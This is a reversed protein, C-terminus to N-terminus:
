LLLLLPLSCHNYRDFEILRNDFEIEKRRVPADIYLHIHEHSGSQFVIVGRLLMQARKGAYPPTKNQKNM